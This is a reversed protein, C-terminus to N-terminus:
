VGNWLHRHLVLGKLVESRSPVSGTRSPRRTARPLVPEERLRLPGTEPPIQRTGAAPLGRGSRARASVEQWDFVLRLM